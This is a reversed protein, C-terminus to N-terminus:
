EDDDFLDMNKEFADFDNYSNRKGTAKNRKGGLLSTDVDDGEDKDFDKLRTSGSMFDDQLVAWRTETQRGGKGSSMLEEEDSDSSEDGDERKAADSDVGEDDSEDKVQRKASTSTSSASSTSTTGSGSKTLLDLFSSKSMSEVQTTNKRKKRVDKTAEKVQKQHKNVANFLQVVGKTAVRKYDRENQQNKHTLKVHGKDRKKRRLKRAQKAVEEELKEREIKRAKRRNLAMIPVVEKEPGNTDADEDDSAAKTPPKLVYGGELPISLLREMARGFGANTPGEETDAPMQQQEDEDDSNIWANIREDDSESEPNSNSSEADSSDGEEEGSSQSLEQEQENESSDDSEDDRKRKVM